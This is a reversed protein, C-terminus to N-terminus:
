IRGWDIALNPDTSGSLRLQWQWDAPIEFVIPANLAEFTYAEKLEDDLHSTFLKLAGGGLNGTPNIFLKGGAHQIAEASGDATLSIM